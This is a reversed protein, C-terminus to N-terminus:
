DVMAAGNENEGEYNERDMMRVNLMKEIGKHIDYQGQWGLRELKTSDLVAYEIPTDEKKEDINPNKMVCGIGAKKSLIHAFEAITVRSAVNAINYAEGDVGNLLVTFLGSACDAVYTYSRMQKGSGHLIINKGTLADNLFQATARNDHISMCAGYVHSPRVVVVPVHYQEEFSVCLTEACRKAMPYCSRVAMSDWYGCEEEMFAHGNGTMKGYVEGSSIYLFRKLRHGKSYQLLQYTGLLAPTMTEVPHERFAAPFGDGAAHIIYDVAVDLKLPEVVDQIVFHLGKESLSSGFRERLRREDRALLYIEVGANEMKNAYLLMDAAFSGIMGTAGTILIRNHYLEKVNVTSNLANRLDDKYVKNQLYM